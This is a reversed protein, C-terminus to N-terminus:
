FDLVSTVTDCANRICEFHVCCLSAQRHLTSYTLFRTSIAYADQLDSVHGLHDFPQKRSSATAVKWESGHVLGLERSVFSVVFINPFSTCRPKSARRM